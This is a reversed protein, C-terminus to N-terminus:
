RSEAAGTPGAAGATGATSGAQREGSGRHEAGGGRRGSGGAARGAAAAARALASPCSPVATVCVYSHLLHPGQAGAHLAGQGGSSGCTSARGSSAVVTLPACGKRVEYRVDVLQLEAERLRSDKLAVVRDLLRWLEQHQAEAQQLVLDAEQQAASLESNRYQGNHTAPSAPVPATSGAQRQQEQQQQPLRSEEWGAPSAPAGWSSLQGVPSLPLPLEQRQLAQPSYLALPQRPPPPLQAPTAPPLRQPQAPESLPGLAAAAAVLSPWPAAAATVALPPGGPQQSTGLRDAPQPLPWANAVAHPRPSPSLFGGGAQQAGQQEERQGSASSTSDPRHQQEGQVAPASGGGVAPGPDGM